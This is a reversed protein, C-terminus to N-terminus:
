QTWQNYNFTKKFHSIPFTGHHLLSLGFLSPNSPNGPYQVSKWALNPNFLGLFLHRLLNSKKHSFSIDIESSRSTFSRISQQLNEMLIRRSSETDTNLWTRCRAIRIRIINRSQDTCRSASYRRFIKSIFPEVVYYQSPRLVYFLFGSPISPGYFMTRRGCLNRADTRYRSIIVVM